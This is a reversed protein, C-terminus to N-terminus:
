PSYIIQIHTLSNGIFSDLPDQEVQRLKELSAQLECCVASREDPDMTDWVQELTQGQVHEMYIFWEDGDTRWGYVEPVPVSDGIFRGIAYLCQAESLRADTGWKVLLGMHEFLVSPPRVHLGDMSYAKREDPNIRALHQAKAQARVEEPSPLHSWKTFFSSDKVDFNPSNPIESPTLQIRKQKTTM